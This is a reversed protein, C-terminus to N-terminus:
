ELTVSIDSEFAEYKVMTSATKDPGFCILGSSRIDTRPTLISLIILQTKNGKMVLDTM